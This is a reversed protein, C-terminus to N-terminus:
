TPRRTALPSVLTAPAPKGFMRGLRRRSGPGIRTTISWTWLAEAPLPLVLFWHEIVALAVLSALMTLGVAAAGEAGAAAEVPWTARVLSATLALSFFLNMPKRTMSHHLFALHPPLIDENLDPVGLILKANLQMGWLILFTWPAVRNPMDWSIAAIALGVALAALEHLLM